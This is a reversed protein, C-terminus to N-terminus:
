GLNLRNVGHVDTSHIQPQVSTTNNFLIDFVIHSEHEHAGIIRANIPLEEECLLSYCM